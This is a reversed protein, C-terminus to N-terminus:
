RPRAPREPPTEGAVHITITQQVIMDGVNVQFTLSYDGAQLYDPTWSLVRTQANFSALNPLMGIVSYSVSFIQDGLAPGVLTLACLHGEQCNQNGVPPIEENVHIEVTMTDAFSGDSVEFTVEYDGAQTFDPIWRFVRTGAEFVAGSPLNGMVSYSLAQGDTPDTAALTFTCLHYEQCDQGALPDFIPAGENTPDIIVNVQDPTGVNGLLDTTVLRFVLTREAESQGYNVNPVTFSPTATDAGNLVVEIGSVRTWQYSAIGSVADSSAAGNLTVLTQEPAHLDAGAKSEPPTTDVFFSFSTGNPDVTGNADEATLTVSYPGDPLSFQNLHVQFLSPDDLVEDRGSLNPTGTVFTINKVGSPDTARLSLIVNGRIYDGVVVGEGPQPDLSKTLVPPTTDGTNNIIKEVTKLSTNGNGDTAQFIFSVSTQNATTTTNFVGRFVSPDSNEDAIGQPSTLALDVIGSPDEAKAVLTVTGTIQNYANGFPDVTIIPPTQDGLNLIHLLVEAQSSHGLNDTAQFLLRLDGNAAAETNFVYTFTGDTARTLEGAESVAGLGSPFLVNFDRIGSKDSVLGQITVTGSVTENESPQSTITITPALNKSAPDFPDTGDIIEDFNSVGDGDGDLNPLEFSGQDLSPSLSPNVGSPNSYSIDSTQYEITQLAETMRQSVSVYAIPLLTGDEMTYYFTLVFTYTKGIPLSVAESHMLAGEIVLISEQRLVGEADYIRLTGSLNNTGLTQLIPAPVPFGQSDPVLPHSSSCATLIFSFLVLIFAFRRM